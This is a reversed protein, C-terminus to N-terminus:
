ILCLAILAVVYYIDGFVGAVRKIYLVIWDKLLLKQPFSWNVLLAELVMFAFAIVSTITFWVQWILIMGWFLAILQILIGEFISKYYHVNDKYQSRNKERVYNSYSM